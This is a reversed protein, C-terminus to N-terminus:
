AVARRVDAHDGGVYITVDRAATKLATWAFGLESSGTAEGGPDRSALARADTAARRRADPDLLGDAASDLSAALDHIAPALGGAARRDLELVSRTLMLCSGALLQLRAADGGDDLVSRQRRRLPSWRVIRSGGVRAHTLDVLRGPMERLFSRARAALAEDGRELANATLRLGEALTQVAAAEAARVLALPEPPFLLQSITLAVAVGVLADVLLDPGAGPHPLAVTLIAAIAAQGVVLREGSIALAAVMAVLTAGGLSGYGDGGVSVAAEGVLIGLLVGLVVRLANPGREGRAANLSAVAAIPAFFPQRHEVVRSAITWAATAAVAAQLIPWANAALRQTAGARADVL